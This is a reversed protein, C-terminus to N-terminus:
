ATVISRYVSLYGDVCAELSFTQQADRRAQAGFTPAASADTAMFYLTASLDFIDGPRFLMGNSRHHVVEPLGGTRSAVVARGAMLAEAAVLGFPEQWISPVVAFHSENLHQAINSRSTWGLLEVSDELRLHRIYRELAVRGPGEGAIKLRAAGIRPLLTSWASLLVPFGKEPSLRGSAFVQLDGTPLPRPAPRHAVGNLVLHARHALTPFHRLFDDFVFQSIAVVADSLDNPFALLALYEPTPNDVINHLTHVVKAGTAVKIAKLLITDQGGANHFHIVEPAFETAIRTMQTSVVHLGQAGLPGRMAAFNFRHIVPGDSTDDLVYPPDDPSCTQAFIVVDNGERSMATSIDHVFNERGGQVPLYPFAWQLIKM